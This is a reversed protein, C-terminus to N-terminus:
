NIGFPFELEVHARGFSASSVIRQLGRVSRLHEEQEILVEKEVDQPTAGPWNTRISITRVELDPIMQVPIKLAAVIGLVVVILTGVAILIGHKVMAEFM